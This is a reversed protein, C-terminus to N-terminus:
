KKPIIQRLAEPRHAVPAPTFVEGEEEPEAPPTPAPAAENKPARAYLALAVAELVARPIGTLTASSTLNVRENRADPGAEALCELRIREDHEAAPVGADELRLKRRRYEAEAAVLPWRIAPIGKQTMTISV